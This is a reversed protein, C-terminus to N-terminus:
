PNYETGVGFQTRIRRDVEIISKLDRIAHAIPCNPLIKRADFLFTLTLLLNLELKRHGNRIRTQGFEGAIARLPQRSAETVCKEDALIEKLLAFAAPGHGIAGLYGAPALISMRQFLEPQTLEGDANIGFVGLIARYKPDVQAIGALMTADALPSELGPEKGTAISDGGVDLGVIGTIGYKRCYANIAETVGAPGGNIDVFFIKEGNIRASLLSGQFCFKDLCTKADGIAGYETLLEVNQLTNVRRPVSKPDVVDREWTLSGLHVEIGMQALNWKLPLCGYIDGGGGIGILLWRKPNKSRIKRTPDFIEM